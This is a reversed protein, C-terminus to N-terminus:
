CTLKYVVVVSELIVYYHGFGSGNHCLGHSTLVNIYINHYEFMQKEDDGSYALIFRGNHSIFSGLTEIAELLEDDMYEIVRLTAMSIKVDSKEYLKFIKDIFDKTKPQTTLIDKRILHHLPELNENTITIQYKRYDCYAAVAKGIGFIDTNNSNVNGIKNDSLVKNNSAIEM